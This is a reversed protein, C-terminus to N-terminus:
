VPIRPGVEDIALEIWRLLTIAYLPGIYDAHISSQQARGWTHPSHYESGVENSVHNLGIYPGRRDECKM